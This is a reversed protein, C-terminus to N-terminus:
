QDELQARLLEASTGCCAGPSGETDLWDAVKAIAAISRHRTFVKTTPHYAMAKGVEEVLGAGTEPPTPDKIVIHGCKTCAGFSPTEDELTEHKCEEQPQAEVTTLRLDLAALRIAVAKFGEAVRSYRGEPTTDELEQIVESLKKM